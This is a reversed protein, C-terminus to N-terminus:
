CLWPHRCFLDGKMEANHFLRNVAPSLLAIQWSVANAAKPFELKRRDIIPHPSAPRIAGCLPFAAGRSSYRLV